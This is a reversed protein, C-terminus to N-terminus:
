EPAVPDELFFIPFRDCQKCFQVANHASLKSHIDTALMFGEPLDRSVDEFLKLTGRYYAERDLLPRNHLIKPSVAATQQVGEQGTTIKVVTLRTGAPQTEIVGIDKIKPSPLGRTARASAQQARELRAGATGLLAAGALSKILNRRDHNMSTRGTQTFGQLLAWRCGIICSSAGTAIEMLMCGPLITPCIMSDPMTATM